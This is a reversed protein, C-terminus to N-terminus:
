PKPLSHQQICREIAMSLNAYNISTPSKCRQLTQNLQHFCMDSSISMLATRIFDWKKQNAHQIYHQLQHKGLILYKEALPYLEEYFTGDDDSYLEKFTTM